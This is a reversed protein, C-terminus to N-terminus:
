GASSFVEDLRAATLVAAAWAELQESSAAALRDEASADLPGFKLRLQKAVIRRQGDAKADARDAARERAIGQALREKPSMKLDELENQLTEELEPPLSELVLDLVSRYLTGYDIPPLWREVAEIVELLRDRSDIQQAAFVTGASNREKAQLDVPVKLEEILLHCFRPQYGQLEPPCPGVLAEVSTEGGWAEDGNYLCIPLAPPLKQGPELRKSKVLDEYFLSLYTLLRLAMNPDPRSQFEILLILYVPSGCWQVSWVLDRVRRLLSKRSTSVEPERKLTSWDLEEIWKGGAPKLDRITFRLLDEILERHTFLQHHIRDHRSSKEDMGKFSTSIAKRQCAASFYAM